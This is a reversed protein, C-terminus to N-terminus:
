QPISLLILIFFQWRIKLPLAHCNFLDDLQEQQTLGAMFFSDQAKYQYILALGQRLMTETEKWQQVNGNCHTWAELIATFYHVHADETLATVEQYVCMTNKSAKTPSWFKHAIGTYNHPCKFM